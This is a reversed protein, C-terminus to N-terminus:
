GQPPKKKKGLRQALSEIAVFLTPVFVVGLITAALMGGFVATGLARRSGAGAGSAILLPVVGLIFAFATMLIPRFRLRAAEIAAEMPGLGRQEHAEKAFEVILIANKTALGILLVLGIQTYVNNDLGRIMIAAFAGFLALPVALIVSFPIKWSEYQAALFLYVFVVAIGFIFVAQNGTAVEQYSMGSWQFGMQSPLKADAMKTMLELAQGSSYGPAASGQITASEYVNFRSILQPGLSQRIKVLTGLPLMQGQANRVQLQGVDKPQSRFASDAQLTVHFTRGFKNFDNVYSSGLYAQLTNFVSSLPVGMSLVKERDVDAFIQPVNVRISTYLNSLGAQANGDQVLEAAMQQLSALGLGGRDQLQMEFGGTNGLGPLAPTLFAFIIAEQVQSFQRQLHTLIAYQDTEPTTREDWPKFVVVIGGVNSNAAGDLFSYGRVTIFNDVGPTAAIIKNLREMVAVTRELSAADPLQVNVMLYGQDEEPVFGTPTRVIGFFALGGIILFVVMALGMRKISLSVTSLYGGTAKQMVTNFWAFFGRHHEPTPRLVLACLAPSLTLANISSFFTATAITLAFQKYLIGTMGGMFATPVFVALLVATTAIVPGTVEQMAKITAEKPALGTEDINRAVNEVVVIADDVVIGIALVLGFLTLTNISFGLIAMVLFTGILSVPITIAPILTARLDQLFVYVTLIVLIAAIVLTEVIEDISAHVVDAANYTIQYNISEPFRKSLEEMKASINDTLDLLNSGPLQYVMLLAAPKGDRQSGTTYSVSGLEVRGVDRVRVLRGDAGTKVVINEFQSVDELRGLVTVTYQFAQDKPAPPQGVIGAAVQVNQASVANVVDSATLGLYRMKEPNLWLRMSYDGAGIVNVSGAGYIRSLEDRVNITAYNCLYIDDYRGDESVLTIMAAFNTSQKMTTVGLRKVDEPLSNTAIAVRNQVLVSAMDLDVGTEFTVTLSYSGDSASVSSMYIMGEVGNVQQEIPAAVTDAVVKANAGPYNAKVTVTPPEINPYQAVPLASLTILGGLVIVISVVAAFIPRNIFFRSFM